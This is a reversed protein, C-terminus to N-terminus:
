RVHGAVMGLPKVCTPVTAAEDVVTGSVNLKQAAAPHPAAGIALGMVNISLAHM